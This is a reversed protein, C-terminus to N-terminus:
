PQCADLALLGTIKIFRNQRGPGGKRLYNQGMGVELVLAQPLRPPWTPDEECGGVGGAGPVQPPRGAGARCTARRCTGEILAVQARGQPPVARSYVCSGGRGGGGGRVQGPIHSLEQSTISAAM